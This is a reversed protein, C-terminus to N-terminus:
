LLAVPVHYEVPGTGTEPNWREDYLEFHPGEVAQLGTAPFWESYVRDVFQTIRSIHDDFTFVAYRAPPVEFRKMTEPPRATPDVQVCAIYECCPEDSEARDSAAIVGYTSEGTRGPINDILPAFEAWLQPIQPMTRPTFKGARGTVVFSPLDIMRPKMPEGTTRLAAPNVPEYIHAIALPGGKQFRGPPVGFQGSFARTFAAQSEFGVSLAVDLVSPAGNKLRQAAISLRRRRLYAMPPEGVVTSFLRHFHWASLCAAHAVTELTVPKDLNAEVFRLARRIPEYGDPM